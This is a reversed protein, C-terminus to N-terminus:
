LGSKEYPRMAHAREGMGDCIGHGGREEWAQVGEWVRLVRGGEPGVRSRAEFMADKINHPITLRSGFVIHIVL